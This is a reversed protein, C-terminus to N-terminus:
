INRLVEDKTTRLKVLDHEAFVIHKFKDAHYMVRGREDVVGVEGSVFRVCKLGDKRTDFVEAIGNGDAM